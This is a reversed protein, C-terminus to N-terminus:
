QNEQGIVQGEENVFLEQDADGWDIQQSSANFDRPNLIQKAM